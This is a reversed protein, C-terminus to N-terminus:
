PTAQLPSQVEIIGIWQQQRAELTSESRATKVLPMTPDSGCTMARLDDAQTARFCPMCAALQLPSISYQCLCLRLDPVERKLCSRFTGQLSCRPCLTQNMGIGLLLLPEICQEWGIFFDYIPPYSGREVAPFEYLHRCPRDRHARPAKQCQMLVIMSSRKNLCTLAAGIHLPRRNPGCPTTVADSRIQTMSDTCTDTNQQRRFVDPITSHATAACALWILLFLLGIHRQM